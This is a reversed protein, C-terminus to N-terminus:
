LSDSDDSNNSENKRVHSYKLIAVFFVGGIINSYNLLSTFGNGSKYNNYTWEM